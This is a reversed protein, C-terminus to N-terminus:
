NERACWGIGHGAHRGNDLFGHQVYGMPCGDITSKGLCQGQEEVPLDNDSIGCALGLPANTTACASANCVNHPDSYECWAFLTCGSPAKDDTGFRQTWGTPCSVLPHNGLCTEGSSTQCAHMFGCATGKPLALMDPQSVDGTSIALAQSYFGNSASLGFDGQFVLRNNAATTGGLTRFGMCTGDVVTAGNKYAIGCTVGMPTGVIDFAAAEVHDVGEGNGDAVACGAMATCGLVFWFVGKNKM